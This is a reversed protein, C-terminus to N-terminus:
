RRKRRRPRPIGGIHVKKCFECRYAHLRRRRGFRKKDRKEIAVIADKAEAWTEYKRKGECSRKRTKTAM